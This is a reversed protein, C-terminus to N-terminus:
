RRPEGQADLFADLRREFVAAFADGLDHFVPDREVAIPEGRRLPGIGIAWARYPETVVVVPRGIGGGWRLRTLVRQMEAGHPGFPASRYADILSDRHSPDIRFM